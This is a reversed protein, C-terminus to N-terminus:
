IIMQGQSEHHVTNQILLILHHTHTTALNAYINKHDSTINLQRIVQIIIIIIINIINIIIVIIIINNNIIIIIIIIIFTITIIIIIVITIM